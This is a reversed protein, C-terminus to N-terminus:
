LYYHLQSLVLFIPEDFAVGVVEARGLLHLELHPYPFWQLNLEAADRSSNKLLVDEDYSQVVGGIMLGGKAFYTLGLYGIAQLRPDADGADAFAQVGADVEALLLLKSDEMWRKYVGGIWGRRDTDSLTLKTQLAYAATSEDNRREWYAAVGHDQATGLEPTPAKTFASVHLEGSGAFRGYAVGYPEEYLYMQLHRRVYATHDQTRIGYVPYFRGARVYWAAEEPEYMLYHERSGFAFGERSPRAGAAVYLSVPGVKPRVYLEAQMPFALVEAEDGLRAGGLFRFDGGIQFSAPPTWAGHLFGGNGEKMSITSGAEERGWETILGGGGPSFHCQGCSDTGTSFQFQPYADARGALAAVVAFALIVRM